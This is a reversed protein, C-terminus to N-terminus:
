IFSPFNVILDFFHFSKLIATVFCTRILFDLSVHLVFEDFNRFFTFCHQLIELGVLNELEVQVQSNLPQDRCLSIKWTFM